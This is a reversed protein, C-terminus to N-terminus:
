PIKADTQQQDAQDTAERAHSTLRDIDEVAAIIGAIALPKVGGDGLGTSGTKAVEDEDPTYIQTSERDRRRREQLERFSDLDIQSTAADYVTAPM